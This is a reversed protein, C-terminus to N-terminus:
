MRTSGVVLVLVLAAGILIIGIIIFVQQLGYVRRLEKIADMLHAIDRGKTAVIERFSSAASTLWIGTFILFIAQIISGAVNVVAKSTEVDSKAVVLAAGAGALIGFVVSAIGVFRLAGALAGIDQNQQQTFEYNPAKEVRQEM